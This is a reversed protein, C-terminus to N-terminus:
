YFIIRYFRRSLPPASPDTFQVLVSTPTPNNTTLISQWTVLNTSAQVQYNSGSPATFSLHAVGNTSTLNILTSLPVLLTLTAPASTISGFANTVIVTYAGANSNQVSSV